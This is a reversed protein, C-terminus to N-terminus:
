KMYRSECNLKKDQSYYTLMTTIRQEHDEPLSSAKSQLLLQSSCFILEDNLLQMNIELDNLHMYLLAHDKEEATCAMESTKRGDAILNNGLFLCGRSTSKRGIVYKLIHKVCRLHSERPDAQFRACVGANDKSVKIHTAAPTIKAKAQELNFM